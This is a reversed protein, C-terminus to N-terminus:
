HQARQFQVQRFRQIDVIGLEAFEDRREHKGANDNHERETRQDVHEAIFGDRDHSENQARGPNEDEYRCFGVTDCKQGADHETDAGHAEIEAVREYRHHEEAALIGSSCRIEAVHEKPDARENRREQDTYQEAPEPVPPGPITMATM